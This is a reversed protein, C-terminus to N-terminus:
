KFSVHLLRPFAKQLREIVSQFWAVWSLEFNAQWAQNATNWFAMM